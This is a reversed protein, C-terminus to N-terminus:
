GAGIVGDAEDMQVLKDESNKLCVSFIPGEMKELTGTRLGKQGSDGDNKHSHTTM